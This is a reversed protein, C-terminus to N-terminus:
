PGGRGTGQRTGSRGTLRGHPEKLCHAPHNCIQRLGTLVKVVLGRRAMRDSDAIRAM